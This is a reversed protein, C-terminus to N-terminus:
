RETLLSGIEKKLEVIDRSLGFYSSFKETTTLLKTRGQPQANVFEKEALLKVHAYVKEGRAKVVEAQLVPQKLAIYSLTKLAEHPLDPQVLEAVGAYLSDKVRMLYSDGGVGKVEIASDISAYSRRLEEVAVRVEERSLGSIESLRELSLPESSIFLSAEVLKAQNM